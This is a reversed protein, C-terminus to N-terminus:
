PASLVRVHPLCTPNTCRVVVISNVMSGFRSVIPNGYTDIAISTNFPMEGAVPDPTEVAPSSCALDNCRLVRVVQEPGTANDIYSVVALDNADIAISADMPDTFGFVPSTTVATSCDPDECRAISLGGLAGDYYAIAPNSSSDIAMSLSTGYEPGAPSVLASSQSGACDQNNCHVLKLGDNTNYYAITPNEDFLNLALSSYQGVNDTGDGTNVPGSAADDGDACDVDNCTALFLKGTLDDYYSIIPNDVADLVLSSYQGRNSTSDVTNISDDGGACDLDNCHAVKLAGN